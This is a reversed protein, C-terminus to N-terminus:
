YIKFKSEPYKINQKGNYGCVFNGNKFIPFQSTFFLNNKSNDTLLMEGIIGTFPMHLFFEDKSINTEKVIKKVNNNYLMQKIKKNLEKFNSKWIKFKKSDKSLNFRIYEWAKSTIDVYEESILEKIAEELSELIVNNKSPKANGINSLFPINSLQGLFDLFTNM